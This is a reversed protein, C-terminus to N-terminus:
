DIRVIRVAQEAKHRSNNSRDSIACVPINAVCNRRFGLITVRLSLTTTCPSLGRQCFPLLLVRGSYTSGLNDRPAIIQILADSDTGTNDHLTHLGVFNDCSRCVRAHNCADVGKNDCPAVFLHKAAVRSTVNPREVNGDSPTGGIERGIKM